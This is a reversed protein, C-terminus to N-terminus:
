EKVVKGYVARGEKDRVEYFYIGSQMHSVNLSATKNLKKDLVKRGTVDYLTISATFFNKITSIHIIDKAPNPYIHTYSNKDIEDIGTIVVSTINSFSTQNISPTALMPTCAVIKRLEVYYQNSGSPAFIDTYTLTPLGLGISDILQWGSNNSNRYIFYKPIFLNSNYVNNWLLQAQNNGSPFTILHITTLSQSPPYSNNCSDIGVVSYRYSRQSPSSTLDTYESLSGLPIVTLSDYLGTLTSDRLIKYGLLNGGYFENWILKCKNISTDVTVICLNDDEIISVYNNCEFCYYNLMPLDFFVSFTSLNINDSFTVLIYYYNGKFLTDGISIYAAGLQMQSCAMIKNLTFDACDTVKESFPGYMIIGVTDGTTAVSVNFTSPKESECIPIYFWVQRNTITLCGLNPGPPSVTGPPPISDPTNLIIRTPNLCTNQSKAFYGSLILLLFTVYINKM